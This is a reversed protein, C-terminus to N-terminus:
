GGAWASPTVGPAAVAPAGPNRRPRETWRKGGNHPAATAATASWTRRQEREDPSAGTSGPTPRPRGVQADARSVGLAGAGSNVSGGADIGPMGASARTADVAVADDSDAVGCTRDRGAVGRGAPQDRDHAGRGTPSRTVGAAKAAATTPLPPPPPPRRPVEVSGHASPCCYSSALLLTAAVALSSPLRGASRHALRMIKELLVRQLSANGEAALSGRTRTQNRSFRPTSRPIQAAPEKHDLSFVS